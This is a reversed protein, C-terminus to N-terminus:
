ARPGRQRAMPNAVSNDVIFSFMAPPLGRPHMIPKPHRHRRSAGAANLIVLESDSNM